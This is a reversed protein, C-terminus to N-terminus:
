RVYQITVLLILAAFSIALALGEYTVFLFRAGGEPGSKRRGVRLAAHLVLVAVGMLTASLTRLAWTRRDGLEMMLLFGFAFVAGSLSLLGPVRADLTRLWERSITFGPSTRSRQLGHDPYQAPRSDDYARRVDADKLVAYAENLSKMEECDGGLDPHLQRAKVRYMHVITETTADKGVGLLKYYDRTDSQQM